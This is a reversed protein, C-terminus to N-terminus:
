FVSEIDKINIKIIKSIKKNNIVQQSFSHCLIKFKGLSNGVSLFYLLAPNITM